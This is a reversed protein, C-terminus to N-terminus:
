KKVQDWAEQPIQMGMVQLRTLEEKTPDVLMESNLVEYPKALGKDIDEKTVGDKFKELKAVAKITIQGGEKAM